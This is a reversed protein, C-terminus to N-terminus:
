IPLCYPSQFHDVQVDSTFDDLVKLTLRSIQIYLFLENINKARNHLEIYAKCYSTFISTFQCLTVTTILWVEFLKIKIKREKKKLHSCSHEKLFTKIGMGSILKLSSQVLKKVQPPYKQTYIVTWHFFAKSLLNTPWCNLYKTPM